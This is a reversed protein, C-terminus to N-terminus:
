TGWKADETESLWREATSKRVYRGDEHSRYSQLRGDEFIFGIEEIWQKLRPEQIDRDQYFDRIDYEWQRALQAMRSEGFHLERRIVEIGIVSANWQADMRQDFLFKAIARRRRDSLDSFRADVNCIIKGADPVGSEPYKKYLLGGASYFRTIEEGWAVSLRSLRQLGFGHVQNMAKLGIIVANLAADKRELVCIEAIEKQRKPALDLLGESLDYM